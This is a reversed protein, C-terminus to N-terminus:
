SFKNKYKHYLTYVVFSILYLLCIFVWVNIMMDYKQLVQNESSPLWSLWSIKSVEYLWKWFGSAVKFPLLIFGFFANLILTGIYTIPDKKWNSPNLRFSSFISSFFNIVIFILCILWSKYYALWYILCILLSFVSLVEWMLKKYKKSLNCLYCIFKSFCSDNNDDLLKNSIIESLSLLIKLVLIIWYIISLWRIITIAYKQLM